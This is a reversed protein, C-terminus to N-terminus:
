ADFLDGSLVDARTKPNFGGLRTRECQIPRGMGAQGAHASSQENSLLVDDVAGRAPKGPLYGLRTAPCEDWRIVLVKKGTPCALRPPSITTGSRIILRLRRSSLGAPPRHNQGSIRASTSLSCTRLPMSIMSRQAALLAATLFMSHFNM